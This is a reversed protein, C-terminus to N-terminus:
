LLSERKFDFIERADKEILRDLLANYGHAIKYELEPGYLPFVSYINIPGDPASLTTFDEEFTVSPLIVVGRYETAPDYPEMDETAQLTHGIALWSDYHHPFRATEKLLNIIWDNGGEGTITGGFEIDKPLIMMLEAFRYPQKDEVVDPVTMELLSMGSTVLVNYEREPDNIMYVDLHFDPSLMEHFVTTQEEKFFRALHNSVLEPHADYFHRDRFKETLPHIAM